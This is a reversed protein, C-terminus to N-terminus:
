ADRRKLVVAAAVLSVVAWIVMAVTAGVPTLVDVGGTDAETVAMMATGLNMPLFKAVDQVWDQSLFSAVLPLVFLLAVLTFISGASHRMITGVGVAILAVLALYGACALIVRQVTQDGLDPVLDNGSLMPATALYSLAIGILGVVFTVVGIIAAKAALAPLRTPVASLTSRIMGTSYEGTIILAGLVAVALQAFVYGLVLAQVTSVNGMEAAMEPESAAFNLSAAMTLSFLVMVVVTAGITWWTSRLSRFKIWESKLVGGFTLRSSSARQATPRAPSVTAATM